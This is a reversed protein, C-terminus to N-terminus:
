LICAILALLSAVSIFSMLIRVYFFSAMQLDAFILVNLMRFAYIFFVSSNAITHWLRYLQLALCRSCSISNCFLKM